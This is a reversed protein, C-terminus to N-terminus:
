VYCKAMAELSVPKIKSGMGACGFAEFRAKVIGRAANEAAEPAMAIALADVSIKLNLIAPQNGEFLEKLTNILLSKGFRRPRSLFYYKGQEIMQVGLGIKDVDYHGEERIARFAWAVRVPGITHALVGLLQLTQM